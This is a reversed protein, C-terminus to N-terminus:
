RGTEVAGLFSGFVDNGYILGQKSLKYGDETRELLGQGILRRITQGFADSISLQFQSRFDEDRVGRLMRLGVMMFDEMAEQESVAYEEARPLGTQCARIYPQVGKINMHRLRAAYGHAGAGIGYYPENRWYTM